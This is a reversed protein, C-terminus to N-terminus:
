RRIIRIGRLTLWDQALPSIIADGPIILEQSHANLAKKIEFESLFVRGKPGSPSLGAPEGGPPAPRPSLHALFVDILDDRTFM